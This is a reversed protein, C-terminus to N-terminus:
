LRNLEWLLNGRAKKEWQDRCVGTKFIREMELFHRLVKKRGKNYLVKPYMAYEKRIQSCYQEYPLREAGLISLDIDLLFEGDFSDDGPPLKHDKTALIWPVVYRYSEKVLGLDQLRAQALNASKEENDKRLPNYVIDHYWIAWQVQEPNTLESRFQDVYQLLQRIHTLTHYHRKPSSYAKILEQFYTETPVSCTETLLSWNQHLYPYPEM